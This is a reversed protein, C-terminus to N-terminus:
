KITDGINRSAGIDNALDSQWNISLVKGTSDKVSVGYYKDYATKSKGILVVPSKLTNFSDLYSQNYEQQDYHHDEVCSALIVAISLLTILQFIQKM